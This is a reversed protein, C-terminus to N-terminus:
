ERFITSKKLGNGPSGRLPYFVPALREVNVTM